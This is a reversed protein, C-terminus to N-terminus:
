LWNGVLVVTGWDSPSFNNSLLYLQAKQLAQAKTLDPYNILEEYFRKILVATSQDDVTWLTALTSRAGSRVALGALGLAARNDGTATQCASLVLLEINESTLPERNALLDRLENINVPEDWAYIVTDQPNSSFQGHTAIHIIQPRTQSVKLQLNKKTFQEERLQEGPFLSKIQDLELRVFPLPGLNNEDPFSPAQDTSIGASLTIPSQQKLTQPQLLKLGPSYAIAYKEILYKEGDDLVAMPVNRLYGDVVFVVTQINNATLVPDVQAFLWQYVQQSLRNLQPDPYSKKVIEQLQELKSELREQTIETTYHLLPQEPLTVIVELRQPLIIGYFIATPSKAQASQQVFDDINVTNDEICADRFFNELEALQLSEIVDRAKRLDDQSPHDTLLLDIYKRYVPEVSERFDYQVDPNLTVLDSRLNKLYNVANGYATIAAPKQHLQLYLRGLQWQIEYDLLSINFATLQQTIDLALLTYKQAKEWEGLQEYVRGVLALAHSQTRQDGLEAATQAINILKLLTTSVLDQNWNNKPDNEERPQLCTLKTAEQCFQYETLKIEAYLRSQSLPVNGILKEAEQIPSIDQSLEIQNLIAELKIQGVPAQGAAQRYDKQAPQCFKDQNEECLSRKTNGLSLLIYSEYEPFSGQVLHQTIELVGQSAALNGVGRLANGLSHLGKVQSLTVHDLSPILTQLNGQCNEANIQFATLLIRCSRPYFGLKQMGQAQNVQNAFLLGSEGIEGYIKAADQWSEVARETQGIMLQHQGQIDWTQALIRQQETTQELTGLINLSEDIYIASKPWNALQQYTLALNGLVMARNLRDGQVAYAYDAQKWKSVAATFEGQTYLDQAQQVIALPNNQSQAVVPSITMSTIFLLVTILGMNQQYVRRLNQLAMLRFIKHGASSWLVLYNGLHRKLSKM